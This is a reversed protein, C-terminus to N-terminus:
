CDVKNDAIKASGCPHISNKSEGDHTARPGSTYPWSFAGKWKKRPRAVEKGPGEDGSEEHLGVILPPYCPPHEPNAEDSWKHDEQGLVNTRGHWPIIRPPAGRGSEMEETDASREHQKPQEKRLFLSHTCTLEAGHELGDAVLREKHVHAM